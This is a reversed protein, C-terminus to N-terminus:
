ITVSLYKSIHIRSTMAILLIARAASSGTQGSDGRFLTLCDCMEANENIDIHNLVVLIWTM